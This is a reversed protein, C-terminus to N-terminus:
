RISHAAADMAQPATRDAFYHCFRRLVVLAALVPDTRMLEDVRREIALDFDRAAAAADRHAAASRGASTQLEYSETTV